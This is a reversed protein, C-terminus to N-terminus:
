QLLKYYINELKRNLIKIDYKSKVNDRGKKGMEPWKESHEMLYKIKNKIAEINRAPVIFGSENELVIESISGVETTVIPLGIAHAEMLVIPLAESVSTLLFIDADMLKKIVNEQDMAGLFIINEILEFKKVLETLYGKLPGDGVIGYEINWNPNEKILNNVARIAYELGKEEVLRAVTILKIKNSNINAQTKECYSYKEVDIGVPHYQIKELKIGIDLMKNYNYKSIALFYDGYEILTRYIDNGNKEALRIDYGHFMTVLKFKFGSKKLYAGINGNPGFHCQVIDFQKVLFPLYFYYKGILTGYNYKNFVYLSKLFLIPDKNIYKAFLLITKIINKIKNEPIYEYYNVREMLHFKNVDDHNKLENPNFKAFIEVNHGLDLLGTIQNLIFTESLAPFENVLIAINM